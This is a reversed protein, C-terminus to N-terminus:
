KKKSIFVFMKRGCTSCVGKLAHRNNKTKVQVIKKMESPHKCKLCYAKM